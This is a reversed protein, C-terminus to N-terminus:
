NCGSICVVLLNPDIQHIIGGVLIVLGWIELGTM